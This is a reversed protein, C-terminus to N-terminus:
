KGANRYMSLAKAAFTLFESDSTFINQFSKNFSDAKAYTYRSDIAVGREYDDAASLVARASLVSNISSFPSDAVMEIMKLNYEFALAVKFANEFNTQSLSARRAAKYSSKTLDLSAQASALDVELKYSLASLLSLLKSNEDRLNQQYKSDIMLKEELLALYDKRAQDYSLKNQPTIAGGAVNQDISRQAAEDKLDFPLNLITGQACLGNCRSLNTVQVVFFSLSNIRAIGAAIKQDVVLTDSAYKDKLTAISKQSASRLLNEDIVEQSKLSAIKKISQSVSNQLNSVAKLAGSKSKITAAESVITGANIILFTALFVTFLRRM